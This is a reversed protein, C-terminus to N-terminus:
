ILEDRYFSYCSDTYKCISKELMQKSGFIIIDVFIQINENFTTIKM